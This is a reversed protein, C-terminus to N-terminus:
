DQALQLSVKAGPRVGRLLGVDGLVRAWTNCPAPLRIEGPRSIPTPGFPIIIRDQQAWHYVEGLEGNLRATRDRGCELPLSFHISAGWPESKSFLPLARLITEATPTTMTELVLRVNGATLNIRATGGSKRHGKRAPPKVAAQESRIFNTPM